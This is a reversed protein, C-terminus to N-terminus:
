TRAEQGAGLLEALRLRARHLRTRLTNLEIGAIRAAEAYPREQLDVLLLVERQAPPLRRLAAWVEAGSQNRVMLTEPTAAHAQGDDAESAADDGAEAVSGPWPTESQLRRWQAAVAHRAVGALFAGV